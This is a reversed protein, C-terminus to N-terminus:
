SSARYEMNAPYPNIKCEPICFASISKIYGMQQEYIYVIAQPNNFYISREQPPAAFLFVNNTLFFTSKQFSINVTCYINIVSLLM